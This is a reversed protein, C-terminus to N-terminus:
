ASAEETRAANARATLQELATESVLLSAAAIIDACGADEVPLALARAINRFSLGANTEDAGLLVLM